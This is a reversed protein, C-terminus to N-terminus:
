STTDLTRVWLGVGHDWSGALVFGARSFVTLMARNESLTEAVLRHVDEERARTTLRELLATGLGHGQWPDDIVFAVEADTPAMTREYRAVGIIQSGVVAVLAERDHHDVTTFLEAEVESLRPHAGFYRRRITESSLRQHFRLLAAADGSAVPRVQVRTGNRLEIDDRSGGSLGNVILAAQDPNPVIAADM